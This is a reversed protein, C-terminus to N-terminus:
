SWTGYNQHCSPEIWPQSPPPIGLQVGPVPIDMKSANSNTWPCAPPYPHIEWYNGKQTRNKSPQALKCLKFIVINELAEKHINSTQSVHTVMDMKNWANRDFKRWILVNQFILNDLLDIIRCYDMWPTDTSAPFISDMWAYRENSARDSSYRGSQWGSGTFIM